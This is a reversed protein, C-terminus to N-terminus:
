QGLLFLLFWLFDDSYFDYFGSFYFSYIFSTFLTFGCFSYFGYTTTSYLTQYLLINMRFQQWRGCKLGTLRPTCHPWQDIDNYRGLSKLCPNWSNSRSYYRIMWYPLYILTPSPKDAYMWFFLPITPPKEVQM